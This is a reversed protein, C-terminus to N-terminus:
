VFTFVVLSSVLMVGLIMMLGLSGRSPDHHCNTHGCEPCALLFKVRQGM